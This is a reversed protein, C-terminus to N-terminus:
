TIGDLNEGNYVEGIQLTIRPYGITVNTVKWKAGNWIVYRISSWNERLYLDSLIQIRNSLVINDNQNGSSQFQRTNQLIDGNYPKEVIKPIWIGRSSEEDGVWFGVMGHFKM